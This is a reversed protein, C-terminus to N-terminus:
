NYHERRMYNEEKGFQLPLLRIDRRSQNGKTKCMCSKAVEFSCSNKNLSPFIVLAPM